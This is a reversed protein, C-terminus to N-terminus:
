KRKMFKKWAKEDARSAIRMAIATDKRKGNSIIEHENLAEIFFSFGYEFVHV